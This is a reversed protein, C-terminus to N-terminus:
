PGSEGGKLAAERSDLRLSGKQKDPGHCSVCRSELLPKVRAVFHQEGESLVAGRLSSCYLLLALTLLLPVWANDWFCLIECDQGRRATPPRSLHFPKLVFVHRTVPSSFPKWM